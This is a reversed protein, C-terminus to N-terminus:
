ATRAPDGSKARALPSPTPPRQWVIPDEAPPDVGSIPGARYGVGDPRFWRVTADSDRKVSWGYEHVLRHHFACILLLNDLDTRGGLRWFRVHHAQTFQTTGCGPFRCGRDRYRIQRVMSASPERTTRGLAIANGARDELVTQVRANCLLRRVTEPHIVPGREIECGGEDTQLVGSQAHVVVTARDPDPDGAVRASCLAVLADARRAHAFLEESEDPMVPITEAVRDLARAVIAGQAAPLDAELGLRRGDDFYWWSVSRTRDTDAVEEVSTRAALDGERRVAACSVGVAWGILGTENTPTAFRALEVVKDIGLEGRSLAKSLQPLLELAHAARLWRHAKWWSIGYRMAVWHATDRAGSDCWAESLDIEAIAALLARQASGIIANAADAAAVPERTALRANDDFM